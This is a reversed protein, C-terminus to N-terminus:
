AISYNIEKLAKERGMKYAYFTLVIGIFAALALVILAQNKNEEESENWTETLAPFAQIYQILNFLSAITNYIAVGIDIAKKTVSAQVISQITIVIGTFVILGGFVLNNLSLLAILAKYSIYHLYMLIYGLIIATGYTAGAFALVLAFQNAISFLTIKWDNSFELKRLLVSNYGSAYANWISLVIDLIAILIEIM